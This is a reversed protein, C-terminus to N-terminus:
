LATLTLTAPLRDDLEAILAGLTEPRIHGIVNVLFVEEDDQAAFAVGRIEDPDAWKVLVFLREGDERVAATQEWGEELLAARAADIRARVRGADGDIEYEYVRVANVGALLTSVEPDDHMVLRALKLPLPGLSLALHRDTDGHGPSGFAAYGPDLRLDGLITCDTLLLFVSALAARRGWRRPGSVTPRAEPAATGAPSATAGSPVDQREPTADRRLPTNEAPQATMAAAARATMAEAARATM